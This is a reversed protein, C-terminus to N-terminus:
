QASSVKPSGTITIFVYIEFKNRVIRKQFLWLSTREFDCSQFGFLKFNQPCYFGLCSLNVNIIYKVIQMLSLLLWKNVLM